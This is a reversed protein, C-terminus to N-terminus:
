KLAHALGRENESLTYTHTNTHRHRDLDVLLVFLFLKHVILSRLTTTLLSRSSLRMNAYDIQQCLTGRRVATVFQKISQQLHQERQRQIHTYTACVYM